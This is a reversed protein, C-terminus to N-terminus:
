WKLGIRFILSNSLLFGQMYGNTKYGIDGIFAAEKGGRYEFSIFEAFGFQNKTLASNAYKMSPQVWMSFQNGVTLRDRQWIPKVKVDIGCSNINSNSGFRLNVQYLSNEPTLVFNQLQFELGWPAFITRGAPLYKYNEIPIMPLINNPNGNNFFDGLSYLSYFLAPDFLDWLVAARLKGNSLTNNGYYNNVGNIYNNVDNGDNIDSPHTLYVYNIQEYQNIIYFLADRYDVNQQTLWPNRLQQSLVTNAEMGAANLSNQQYTNLDNYDSVLFYTAGHGIGILYDIYSFGFERARYGHGFIEHQGVALFSGLIYDLSIKGTRAIMWSFDNYGEGNPLFKDDVFKYFNYTSTAITSGAYPSWHKDVLIKYEQACSFSAALFLLILFSLKKM